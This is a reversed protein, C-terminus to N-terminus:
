HAFKLPSNHHLHVMMQHGTSQNVILNFCESCSNTHVDICLAQTLDNNSTNILWLCMRILIEIHYCPFNDLFTLVM